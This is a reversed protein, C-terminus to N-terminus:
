HLRFPVSTGLTIAKGAHTDTGGMFQEYAVFLDADPLALTVSGGLHWSNDRLLRDHQRFLEATTIEGPPPFPTGTLSGFRLGGHTRRWSLGGRASLRPSIAVSAGVSWHSRNNPVAAVNEVIAYAYHGHLALRPSLGTLRVGADLGLRLEKLRYGVVAEGEFQYAHTPVGVGLSPTLAVDGDLLAYRVTASVDQWASHWCRCADVPLNAPSPGPGHYRAFVYPLGAAVSLRDTIAYDAEVLVSATRSKGDRLLYGDTMRHGTNDIVQSSVTVAGTREPAPWAQGRATGIAALWLVVALVAARLPAM